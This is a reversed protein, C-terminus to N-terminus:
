LFDENYKSMKINNLPIEKIEDNEWVREGKVLKESENREETRESGGKKWRRGKGERKRGGEITGWKQGLGRGWEKRRQRGMGRNLEWGRERRGYRRRGMQRGTTFYVDLGYNLGRLGYNWSTLAREGEGGKVGEGQEGKGKRGRMIWPRWEVGEREEVSSHLILTTGKSM